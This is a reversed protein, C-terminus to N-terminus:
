SLDSMDYNDVFGDFFNRDALKENVNPDDGGDRDGGRGRYQNRREGSVSAEWQGAAGSSSNGGGRVNSGGLKSQSNSSSSKGGSNEMKRKLPPLNLSRRINRGSSGRSNNKDQDGGSIYQNEVNPEKAGSSAM